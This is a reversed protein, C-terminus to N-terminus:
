DMPRNIWAQMVNQWGAEKTENTFSIEFFENNVPTCTYGMEGLKHCFADAAAVFDEKNTPLYKFPGKLTVRSKDFGKMLQELHFAVTDKRIAKLFAHGPTGEPADEKPHIMWNDDHTFGQTAIYRSFFERTFENPFQTLSFYFSARGINISICQHFARLREDIVVRHENMLQQFAADCM